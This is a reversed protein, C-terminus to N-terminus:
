VNKVGVPLQVQKLNKFDGYSIYGVSVNVNGEDREIEISSQSLAVRCEKTGNTGDGCVTNRRYLSKVIDFRIMIEMVLTNPYNEYDFVGSGASRNYFMSRKPQMLELMIDSETELDLPYQGYGFFINMDGLMAISYM